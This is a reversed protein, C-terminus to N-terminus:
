CAFCSGAKSTKFCEATNTTPLGCVKDSDGGTAAALFVATDDLQALTERVLKLNKM